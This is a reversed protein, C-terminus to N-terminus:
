ARLLPGVAEEVEGSSGSAGVVAAWAETDEDKPVQGPSGAAARDVDEIDRQLQAAYSDAAAGGSSVVRSILTMLM